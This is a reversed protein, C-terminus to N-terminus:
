PKPDYLDVLKGNEWQVGLARAVLLENRVGKMARQYEKRVYDGFKLGEIRPPGSIGMRQWLKECMYRETSGIRAKTSYAPGEWRLLLGKKLAREDLAAVQRRKKDDSRYWESPSARVTMGDLFPYAEHVGDESYDETKLQNLDEWVTGVIPFQANSAHVIISLIEKARDSSYTDDASTEITANAVWAALKEPRPNYLIVWGEKKVTDNAGYDWKGNAWRLEKEDTVRYHFETPLVVKKRESEELDWLAWVEEWGPPAAVTPRQPPFWLVLDQEMYRGGMANLSDGYLDKFKSDTTVAAETVMEVRKWEAWSVPSLSAVLVGAALVRIIKVTWQEGHPNCASRCQCELELFVTM